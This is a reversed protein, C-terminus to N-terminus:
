RQELQKNYYTSCNSLFIDRFSWKLQGWVALLLVSPGTREDIRTKWNPIVLKQIILFDNERECDFVIIQKRLETFYVCNDGGNVGKSIIRSISEVWDSHFFDIM